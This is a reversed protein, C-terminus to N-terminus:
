KSIGQSQTQGQRQPQNADEKSQQLSYGPTELIQRAEKSLNPRQSLCKRVEPYPSKALDIQAQPCLKDNDALNKQTWVDESKALILQVDDAISENAALYRQPGPNESRALIRQAKLCISPNSALNSLIHEDQSRALILQAKPVLGRNLALNQKTWEDKSKALKIQVKPILKKNWTLYQHIGPDERKALEIQLRPILNQSAALVQLTVVNESQAIIHQAEPIVHNLEVLCQKVEEHKSKALIVQAEDAIGKDEALRMQVTKNESKALHIQVRPCLYGRRALDILDSENKFNDLVIPVVEPALNENSTLRENVSKINRQALILQTQLTIIPNEALSALPYPDDKQALINQVEPDLHKNKALCELVERVKSQAIEIQRKPDKEHEAIFLEASPIKKQRLLSLVDDIYEDLIEAKDSETKVEVLGSRLRIAVKMKRKDRLLWFSSDLLFSIGDFNKTDFRNRALKDLKRVNADYNDPEEKMSPLYVWTKNNWERPLDEESSAALQQMLKRYAKPLDINEFEVDDRLEDLVVPKLAAIKGIGFNGQEQLYSVPIDWVLDQWFPDKAFELNEETLYWKWLDLNSNRKPNYHEKIVMEWGGKEHLEIARLADLDGKRAKITLARMESQEALITGEATLDYQGLEMRQAVRKEVFGRLQDLTKVRDWPVLEGNKELWAVETPHTGKSIGLAEQREELTPFKPAVGM